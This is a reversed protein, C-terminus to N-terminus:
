GQVEWVDQALALIQAKSLLSRLLGIPGKIPGGPCDWLAGPAYSRQVYRFWSQIVRKFRAVEPHFLGGEFHLLTM